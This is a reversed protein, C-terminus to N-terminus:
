DDQLGPNKRVVSSMEKLHELRLAIGVQANRIPKNLVVEGERCATHEPSEVVLQAARLSLEDPHSLSLDEVNSHIYAFTRRRIATIIPKDKRRVAITLHVNGLAKSV